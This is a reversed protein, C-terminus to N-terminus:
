GKLASLVEAGVGRVREDGGGVVGSVVREANMLVAAERGLANGAVVKGLVVLGRFLTEADGESKIMEV